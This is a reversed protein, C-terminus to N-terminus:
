ILIAGNPPRMLLVASFMRTHDGDLNVCHQHLGNLLARLGYSTPANHAGLKQVGAYMHMYASIYIYVCVEKHISLYPYLCLYTNQTRTVYACAYTGLNGIRLCRQRGPRRACLPGLNPIM